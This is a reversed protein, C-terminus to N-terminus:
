CIISKLVDNVKYTLVKMQEFQEATAWDLAIAQSENVM